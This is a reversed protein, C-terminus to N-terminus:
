ARAELLGFSRDATDVFEDEPTLMAMAQHGAIM